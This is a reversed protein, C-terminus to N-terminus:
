PRGVLLSVKSGCPKIQLSRGIAHEAIRCDPLAGLRERLVRNGSQSYTVVHFLGEPPRSISLCDRATCARVCGPLSM